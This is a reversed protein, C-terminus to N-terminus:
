RVKRAPIGVYTGSEKIDSIVTAGAGIISGNSISKGQIIQTGTGIEAGQGIKVMGSVHVGPYITVFDNIVVDHGITSDLNIIVHKGINIDVTLICGACIIVGEGIDVRKSLITSPDILSAFHIHSNQANRIREIVQMRINASGIACVVYIDSSIDFVSDVTGVVRYEDEFFGIKDIDDDLFGKIEWVPNEENIREVLWAVERGFGGAGIIYLSKM